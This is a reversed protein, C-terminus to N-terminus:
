SSQRGLRLFGSGRPHNGAYYIHVPPAPRQEFSRSSRPLLDRGIRVWHYLTLANAPRSVRLVAALPQSAM